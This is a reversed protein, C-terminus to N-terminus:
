KKSLYDATLIPIQKTLWDAMEKEEGAIKTCIRATESDGIERAASALSMYSAIELYEVSLDSIANKVMRDDFFAAGLGVLAGGAHAMLEKATSIDGGLRVICDEVDRAQRETTDIHEQIKSAAMQNGEAEAAKVQQNLNGMVKHEMAYADNLWKILIKKKEDM